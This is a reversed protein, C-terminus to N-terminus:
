KVSAHIVIKGTEKHRVRSCTLIRIDEANRRASACSNFCITHRDRLSHHRQWVFFGGARQHVKDRLHSVRTHANTARRFNHHRFALRIRRNAGREGHNLLRLLNNVGNVLAKMCRLSILKGKQRPLKLFVRLAEPLLVATRSIRPILLGEHRSEIIAIQHRLSVGVGGALRLTEHLDHRQLLKLLGARGEVIGDCHVNSRQLSNAPVIRLLKHSRGGRTILGRRLKQFGHSIQLVILAVRLSTHQIALSAGLLSVGLNGGLLLTSLNLHHTNLFFKAAILVFHRFHVIVALVAKARFTSLQNIQRLINELM